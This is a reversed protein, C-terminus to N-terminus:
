LHAFRIGPQHHLLAIIGFALHGSQDCEGVRDASGLIRRSSSDGYDGSMGVLGINPSLRTLTVPPPPAVVSVTLPVTKSTISGSYASIYATGAAEGTALGTASDIMAVSYNSSLFTVPIGTMVHGYQDYATAAFQQQSGINISASSPSLVIQTLNPPPPNVTITATGKKTSDAISTATVYATKTATVIPATYL